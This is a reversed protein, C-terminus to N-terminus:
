LVRAGESVREGWRSATPACFALLLLPQRHKGDVDVDVDADVDVCDVRQDHM